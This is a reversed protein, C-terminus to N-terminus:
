RAAAKELEAVLLRASAEWDFRDVVQRARAEMDGTWGNPALAERLADEIGRPSLDRCRFPYDPWTQDLALGASVVAPSGCALCELPPLGFGEYQSVYVGAAAGRYLPALSAEEVWGLELTCAELGLERIWGGLREPSQMRNAGAIVLHLDPRDVRLAAVAELVERPQRRELVTGLWLLYPVHVGLRQVVGRDHEHPEPAFIKRDVGLPVVALRGRPVRYRQALLGVTHDTGTVVRDAFRAARRALLRRRWRERFGFESPLLEFSLDHLCVVTPTRIGFPITYAPCFVVDLDHRALEAKLRLQEWVVRSGHHNSFHEVVGPPRVTGSVAEGQFFLHWEAGHDWSELGSLLGRLYRGVGTTPGEMEAAICGVKVAGMRGRGTGTETETEAGEEPEPDTEPTTEEGSPAQFEAIM